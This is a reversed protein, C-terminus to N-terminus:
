KGFRMTGLPVNRKGFRMTELVARKYLDNISDDRHQMEDVTNQIQYRKGFRMTGLPGSARKGFRMTGLPTRIARMSGSEDTRKEYPWLSEYSNGELNFKKM